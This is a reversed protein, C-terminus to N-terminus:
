EMKGGTEAQKEMEIKGFRFTIGASIFRSNYKTSNYAIYYPNTNENKYVGWNFIDQVNVFVSIKKQWFDARLGCNIGYRPGNEVFLSKSKSYYYGSANVELFKWLKAWFNLRFNYTFSNTIVKDDDRFITESHSQAVGANLRINMFAKLKYTVNLDGGYRHSKGSNVPISYSVYRGFYDDYIVDTLRSVEDKNNRFYATVGVSGFKEFYRTWGGEIANTYTPLLDKNGTSYSDEEYIIFPNIQSISPYRIRRTYSLNFNDQSKTRYSLHLSPFLGPYYESGELGPINLINYNYICNQFRLGGKMTFNGFTHQVTAYVDIQAQLAKGNAFRMSDLQYIDSDFNILTDTRQTYNSSSFGGSMGVNLEGDEHYPYTYDLNAEFDFSKDQYLTKYNRNLNQYNVFQRNFNESSKGNDFDGSFEAVLMHGEDNFNHEYELGFWTSFWPESAQADELYDYIGPNDIYERYKYNQSASSKDFIDSWVGAYFSLTKLSDINYSGHLNQGIALQKRKTHNTFTRYSSTDLDDNLIINYGDGKRDSQSYYAYTYSNISFKENSFMYSIWPSAFPRTSGNVGFSLFSNKKVNSKTVINIIGGTGQATYRASPNTIVEIRELSNAPLQQIYTKLNEERLKSPRGNIWIEVSSVGRLTINGEIDVEVGPANQLADAATGTQISVDESVNYLVKEGDNMYVPKQTVIDVGQLTTAASQLFVTDMIIEKKNGNASLPMQVANYGLYSTKLIYDGAKVEPLLFKGQADTFTHTVFTSDKTDILGVNVYFLPAKTANDTIIGSVKYTSNQAYLVKISLLSLLVFLFPTIIRM